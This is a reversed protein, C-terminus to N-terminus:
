IDQATLGPPLVVDRDGERRLGERAAGDPEEEARVQRRAEPAHGPHEEELHLAWISLVSIGDDGSRDAFPRMM